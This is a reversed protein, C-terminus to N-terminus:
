KGTHECTYLDRLIKTDLTGDLPWKSDNDLQNQPWAQNSLFILNKTKLDPLLRLPELNALLCGLPTDSPIKSPGAGIILGQRLFFIDDGLYEKGTRFLSTSPGWPFTKVSLITWVEPVWSRLQTLQSRTSPSEWSLSLSLSVHSM